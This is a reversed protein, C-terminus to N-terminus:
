KQGGGFLNGLRSKSIKNKNGVRLSDDFIIKEINYVVQEKKANDKAVQTEIDLEDLDVFKNELEMIIDLLKAKVNFVINELQNSSFRIRMSAIQLEETSISHCFITPILKGFNERNEGSLIDQIAVISERVNLTRLKDISAQSILPELPVQANTYKVNYNLIYTGMPNGRLKRYAPIDENEKYGRLEGNVWNIISENELDTLIVKLRLLVNEINEKGSVVDKLLQSRAM